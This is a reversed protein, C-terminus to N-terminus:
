AERSESREANAKIGRLLYMQFWRLVLRVPVRLCYGLIGDLAYRSSLSLSVGADTPLIHYAGAIMRFPGGCLDLFYGVRFGPDPRFTFAYREPPRWEIIKQSFRLGNSFYATRAGGVGPQTVEARVPKPIDLLALHAPHRFSALNVQTVERWVTAARAKIILSHEITHETRM